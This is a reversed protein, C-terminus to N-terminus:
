KKSKKPFGKMMGKMGEISKQQAIESEKSRTVVTGTEHTPDSCGPMIGIGVCAIPLLLGGTLFATVKSRMPVERRM